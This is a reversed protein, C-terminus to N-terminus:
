NLVSVKNECNIDAGHKILTELVPKHGKESAWHLPTM